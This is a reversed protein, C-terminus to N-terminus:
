EKWRWENAIQLPTRLGQAVLFDRTQSDTQRRAPIDDADALAYLLMGAYRVTNKLQDANVLNIRDCNAHYCDLVSRDLHGNM